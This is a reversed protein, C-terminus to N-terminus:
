NKSGGILLIVKHLNKCLLHSVLKFNMNTVRSPYITIERNPLTFSKLVKLQNFPWKRIKGMLTTTPTHIPLDLLDAQLHSIIEIICGGVYSWVM